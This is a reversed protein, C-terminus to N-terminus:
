CWWRFEFRSTLSPCTTFVSVGTKSSNVITRTDPYTEFVSEYFDSPRVMQQFLCENVHSRCRSCWADTPKQLLHVAMTSPLFSRPFVLSRKLLLKRIKKSRTADLTDWRSKAQGWGGSNVFPKEAWGLSTDKGIRATSSSPWTEVAGQWHFTRHPRDISDM